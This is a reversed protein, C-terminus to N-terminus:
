REVTGGTTSLAALESDPREVQVDIEPPAGTRDLYAWSAVLAARLPDLGDSGPAGAITLRSGALRATAAGCRASGDRALEAAPPAALLASVDLGLYTPRFRQEAAILDRPRAVGSFVLLSDCGVAFAGEIDTDLRDGVVLPNGAASRQVSEAHMAPDPKGTAPPMSGLAHALAAVLAGNGPLLGRASPLTADLNTALWYAGRQIAVMAEALAHWDTDPSYGQVVAAPADDASFVPRLGRERVAEVLGAAGLVLVASGSPLRDALHHAAAQAATIVESPDALVDMGTLLEAVAEPTRAANNTVFALRMGRARAQALAQPAGSVPERGLYVVGDLDLLAVDYSEALPRDSGFVHQGEEPRPSVASAVAVFAIV